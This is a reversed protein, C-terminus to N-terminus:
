PQVRRVWRAPDAIEHPRPLTEPGTWVANFGSMGVQDVVARVFAAGETYQRLKADVGLMKRLAGERRSPNSRRKDFRERLVNVSPVVRPGVEDMVVDAHGELLSMLATLHSLIERQRPTHVLDILTPKDPQRLAGVLAAIVRRLTQWGSTDTEALYEHVTETFHDSLWPVATFQVRHTEEHLCVWLRFDKAPVDLQREVSVINPAVLLLRGSPQGPVAFAEYQGLVKSSLWGLVVGLQLATAKAGAERVLVTPEQRQLLETLPSMAVQMQAINARIWEPRGVVVAHHADLPAMLGTVEAVPEVARRSARRIQAVIARASGESVQPGAAAFRRGAAVAFEWDIVTTM